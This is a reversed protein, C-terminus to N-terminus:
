TSNRIVILHTAAAAFPVNRPVSSPTDGHDTRQAEHQGPREGAVRAVLLADPDVHVLELSDLGREDVVKEFVDLPGLLHERVRALRELHTDDIGGLEGV